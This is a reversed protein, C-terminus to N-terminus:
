QANQRILPEFFTFDNIDLHKVDDVEAKEIKVNKSLWLGINGIEKISYPEIYSPFVAMVTPVSPDPLDAVKEFTLIISATVFYTLWLTPEEACNMQFWLPWIQSYSRKYLLVFDSYMWLLEALGMKRMWIAAIPSVKGLIMIVVKALIQCEETVNKLIKLHNINRLMSDYCSFILPLRKNIEDESLINESNEPDESNEPNYPASLPNGSLNWYPFYSLIIPVFIDNMGQLYSIPPNFLSYCRLLLTLIRLGTSGEKKFAPNNRDTRSVDHDIVTYTGHLKKFNKETIEGIQSHKIFISFEESREKIINEREEKTEKGTFLRTIFPLARTMLSPEVGAHFARNRFLEVDIMRGESDFLSDWESESIKEYKPLQDIFKQIKNLLRRHLSQAAINLPFTSDVPLTNVKDHFIIFKTYFDDIQQWFDELTTYEEIELLCFPPSYPFTSTRCNSYIGFSYPTDLSPYAIGLKLLKELFDVLQDISVIGISFIRPEAENRKFFSLQLNVITEGSETDVQSKDNFDIHSIESFPLCFPSTKSWSGPQYYQEDQFVANVHQNPSGDLHRFMLEYFQDNQLLVLVGDADGKDFISKIPEIASLQYRSM